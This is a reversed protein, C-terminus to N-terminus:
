ALNTSIRGQDKKMRIHQRPLKKWNVGLASYIKKHVAEPEGAVRIHHIERDSPCVVTTYCHTQLVRRITSWRRTDGNQRLVYEIWHVIRYALVTIFIHADCRDEKHHFIPRLGLDTKLTRFGAEVRTLMMYLKWITQEGLDKRSCRMYYMGCLRNAQLYEEDLRRFHLKRCKEESQVASKKPRGVKKKPQENLSPIPNVEPGEEIRFEYYRAIRPHKQKLRGLAQHVASETKISGTGGKEWRAVLRKLDKLFREEAKSLIAREKEGRGDSHCFVIREDGEDKFAVTVPEKGERGNIETFNATPLDNEYGIRTPRKGTIIYDYGKERLMQLNEESCFGSDMVILPKQLPETSGKLLEIMTELTGCDHMNGPFTEHKIVFGEEDLVLGFAVQKADSRMEKSKGSRKAKPNDDVSGEFYTNSTDYLYLTRQLQFLVRERDALNKEISDKHKMLLDSVRYFQEDILNAPIHNCLDRFSTTEAWAPLAHESCPDILRNAVSLLALEVHRDRFGLSKFLAEMGLVEWGRLIVLEPGLETTHHHSIRSPDVEITEFSTTPFHESLAGSLDTPREPSVAVRYTESLTESSPEKSPKQKREIMKLINEVWMEEEASFPTFTKVGRLRNRIEEAVTKWLDPSFQADGFSVIIRQRPNGLADRFSEVLQVSKSNGIRKYRFFM